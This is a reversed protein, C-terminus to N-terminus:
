ASNPPSMPAVITPRPKESTFHNPTPRSSSPTTPLTIRGASNEGNIAPMTAAIPVQVTKRTVLPTLSCRTPLLNRQPWIPVAESRDRDWPVFSACFVMPTM